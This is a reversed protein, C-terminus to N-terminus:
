LVSRGRVELVSVIKAHQLARPDLGQRGGAQVLDVLPALFRAPSSASQGTVLQPVGTEGPQTLGPHRQFGDLGLGTVGEISDM